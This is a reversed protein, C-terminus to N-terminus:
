FKMGTREDVASGRLLFTQASTIQVRSFRGPQDERTTPWLVLKNQGTRGSYIATNTKSPGDALVEVTQGVWQENVVLSIENQLDMLRQL